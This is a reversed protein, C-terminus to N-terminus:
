SQGQGAQEEQRKEPEIGSSGYYGLWDLAHSRKNRLPSQADVHDAGFSLTARVVRGFTDTDIGVYAMRGGCRRKVETRGYYVGDQPKSVLTWDYRNARDMFERWVRQKDYSV